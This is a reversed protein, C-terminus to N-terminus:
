PCVYGECAQNWCPEALVGCVEGTRGACSCKAPCNNSDLCTDNTCGNKGFFCLYRSPATPCKGLCEGFVGSGGCTRHGGCECPITAGLVCGTEAVATDKKSSDALMSTDPSTDAVMTDGPATDPALSTDEPSSTDGTDEPSSTDGTGEGAVDFSSSSCAFSGLGLLSALLLVPPRKM